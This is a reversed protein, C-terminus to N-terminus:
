CFDGLNSMLKECALRYNRQVTRIGLGLEKAIESKSVEDYWIRRFIERQLEPLADVDCHFQIWDVKQQMPTPECAHLEEPRADRNEAMPTAYTSRVSRRHQRALTLFTWKVHLGVIRRLHTESTPRVKGADIADLLSLAAQQSVDGTMEWRRLEPFRLFAHHCAAAIWDGMQARWDVRIEAPSPSSEAISILTSQEAM